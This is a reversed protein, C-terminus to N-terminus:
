RVAYLILLAVVLVFIAWEVYLRGRGRTNITTLIDSQARLEKSHEELTADVEAQRNERAQHDAAQSADVQEIFSKLAAALHDLRASVDLFLGDTGIADLVDSGIKPRRLKAEILRLEERTGSLGILVDPPTNPKTRAEQKEYLWLRHRLINRLELLHLLEEEAAKSQEDDM